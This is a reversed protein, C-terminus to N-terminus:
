GGSCHSQPVLRILVRYEGSDKLYLQFEALRPLKLSALDVAYENSAMHDLEGGLHRAHDFTQHSLEDQGEAEATKTSPQAQTWPGTSSRVLPPREATTLTRLQPNGSRRM